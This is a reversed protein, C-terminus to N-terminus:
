GQRIYLLSLDYTSFPFGQFLQPYDLLLVSSESHTMLLPVFAECTLPLQSAALHRCSDYIPDPHYIYALMTRECCYSLLFSLGKLQFAMCLWHKKSCCFPDLM